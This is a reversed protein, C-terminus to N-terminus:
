KMLVMKKTEVFKGAILRYFYIGSPVESAEWRVSYEGPQKTEQLLTAVNRGLVDHITLSVHSTSAMSFTIKTRPNFPNPYNNGLQFSEITFNDDVIDSLLKLWTSTYRADNVWAGGSWSQLLQELINNFADYTGLVRTQSEWLSLGGNWRLNEIGTNYGNPDYSFSTKRSNIWTSGNWSQLTQDVPRNNVNYTSLYRSNKNWANSYWIEFVMEILNRNSDFAFLKRTDNSWDGSLWKQQAVETTDGNIDYIWLTREFNMWDSGSWQQVITETHHGNKDFQYLERWSNGWDSLNWFDTNFEVLHGQPDYTYRYRRINYWESVNWFDVILEALSDNDTYTYSLREGLEWVSLLPNWGEATSQTIKRENDYGYTYKYGNVWQIGDWAQHFWETQNGANDYSYSSNSSPTWTSSGGDWYETLYSALGFTGDSSLTALDPNNKPLQVDPIHQTGTSKPGVSRSHLYGTNILNRPTFPNTQSQLNDNFLFSLLLFIVITYSSFIRM